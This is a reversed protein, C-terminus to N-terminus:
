RTRLPLFSADKGLCQPTLSICRSIWFICKHWHPSVEVDRHFQAYHQCLSSTKASPRRGFYGAHGACWIFGSVERLFVSGPGTSTRRRCSSFLIKRRNTFYSLLLYLFFYVSLDFLLASILNQTNFLAYQQLIWWFNMCASAWRSGLSAANGLLDWQVPHLAHVHYPDPM